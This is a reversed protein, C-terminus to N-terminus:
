SQPLELAEGGAWANGSTDSKAHALISQSMRKKLHIVDISAQLLQVMILPIARM